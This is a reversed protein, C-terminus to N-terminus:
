LKEDLKQKLYEAIETQDREVAFAYVDMDKMNEGSYKKTIDIDHGVLLKVFELNGGYIAAFLSNRDPPCKIPACNLPEGSISLRTSTTIM